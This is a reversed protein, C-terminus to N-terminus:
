LLMMLFVGVFLHVGMAHVCMNLEYARNREATGNRTPCELLHFISEDNKLSFDKNFDEGYPFYEWKPPTFPTLTTGGMKWRKEMKLYEVISNKLEPSLFLKKTYEYKEYIKPIEVNSMYVMENLWFVIASIGCVGVWIWFRGYSKKSKNCYNDNDDFYFLVGAYMVM